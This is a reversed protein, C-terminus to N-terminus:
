KLGNSMAPNQVAGQMKQTFYWAIAKETKLCLSSLDVLHICVQVERSLVILCILLVDNEQNSTFHNSCLGHIHHWECSSLYRSVM